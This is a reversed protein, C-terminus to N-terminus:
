ELEKPTLVGGAGWIELFLASLWHYLSIITLEFRVAEALIRFWLFGAIGRWFRSYLRNEALSAVVPFHSYLPIFRPEVGWIRGLNQGTLEANRAGSSTM